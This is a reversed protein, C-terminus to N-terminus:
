DTGNSKGSYTSALQRATAETLQRARRATERAVNL